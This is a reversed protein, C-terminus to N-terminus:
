SPFGNRDNSFLPAEPSRSEDFFMQLWLELWLLLWFRYGNRTEGNLNKQWCNELYPFNFIGRRRAAPGFVIERIIPSWPGQIWEEVPVSFGHKPRFIAERPLYQMALRKLLYKREWPRMKFSPPLQAALEAVQYDLFPSRIELSSCMTAVDVKVNYDYPLLTCFDVFLAKDLPHDGDFSELDSIASKLLLDRNFAKVIGAPWLKQLQFESWYCVNSYSLTPDASAYRLLRRLSSFIGMDGREYSNGSSKILYDLICEPFLRAVYHALFRGQHQSYGAFSEDGGDGTLAVKVYDRAEKAVYYTPIAAADGFPQGFEWVLYPLVAGANPQALKEAHETRLHAAVQRSYLREDHEAAEFGISFTRVPVDSLRSMYSTILSSDVGGSLFAGIPVDSYLRRKVAQALKEDVAELAEAWSYKRKNAFSLRWYRCLRSNDRSVQLWTAPPLQRVEKFITTPGPIYGWYLFLAIAEEAVQLGKHTALWISKLDSSFYFRGRHESYFLPKKGLRDRALSLTHANEDWLAFAFM